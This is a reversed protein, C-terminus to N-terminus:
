EDQKEEELIEKRKFVFTVDSDNTFEFKNSIECVKDINITSKNYEIFDWAIDEIDKPSAIPVGHMEIDVDFSKFFDDKKM